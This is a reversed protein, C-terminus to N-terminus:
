KVREFVRVGRWPKGSQNWTESLVLRDGTLDYHRDERRGIYVRSLDGEPLHTVVKRALDVEYRGFYAVYGDYMAVKEQVTFRDWDDSAVDPPPTKMLQVAMHGTSDYILLGAPTEGYPYVVVDAANRDEYSVIKWTGVLAPLEPGAVQGQSTLAILIAALGCTFGSM